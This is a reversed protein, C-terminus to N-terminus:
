DKNISLMIDSLKRFHAYRSYNRILINTYLSEMVCMEAIRKSMVEGTPIPAFTATCLVIDSRKALPSVPFNTILLVKGGISKAAKALEIMTKTRGSYSIIVLLDEPNLQSVSIIQLDFDMHCGADFGARVFRLYGAYAVAFADGTGAFVIKGAAGIADLARAYAERDIIEVTDRLSAVSSEFVKRMVEAPDQGGDVDLEVNAAQEAGNALGAAAKLEPFGPYGLKRALRVFTAESSNSGRASETITNGAFEEPHCLIFDAAKREATKLTDYIGQMKVFLIHSILQPKVNEYDLRM